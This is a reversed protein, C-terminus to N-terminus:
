AWFEVLPEAWVRLCAPKEPLGGAWRQFFEWIILCDYLMYVRQRQSFGASPQKLRIYENTFVAARPADKRLYWGLERALDAEGDGFHLTMLDFLGCVKWGPSQELHLNGLKYDEHVLTITYPEAMVAESAQLITEVWAADTSKTNDNAALSNALLERIRGIIWVRYDVGLPKITRLELDYRGANEWTIGQFEVLTRALALAVETKDAESLTAYVEDAELQKGPMRPMLVFPWGFIQSSPEYLYPYAVPLSSHERILHTFFQEAPFQWHTHPNGRLVWDGQSSSVFLNQGFMGAAIPQAETLTGLGFCDLAAQLQAPTLTGLRESYARPEV